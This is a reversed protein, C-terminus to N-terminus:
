LIRGAVFAPLAIGLATRLGLGGCTVGTTAQWWSHDPLDGNLSASVSCSGTLLSWCTRTRCTGTSARTVCLRPSMLANGPSSWRPPPTTLVALRLACRTVPECQSGCEHMSTSSLASPQVWRRPVQRQPSSTLLTTYTHRRGLGSVRAPARSHLAPARLEHRQRTCCVGLHRRLDLAGDLARLLPDFQFARVFVQGDDVFWEDSVGKDQIPNSLCEGLHADRRSGWCWRVRSSALCTVRSPEGLQYRLYSGHPPHHCLRSPTAVSDLSRSGRLAHTPSRPHPAM